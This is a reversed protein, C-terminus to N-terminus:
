AAAVGNSRFMRVDEFGWVRTRGCERCAYITEIGSVKIGVVRARGGKYDHRTPGHCGACMLIAPDYDDRNNM